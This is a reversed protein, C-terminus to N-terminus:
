LVIGPLYSEVATKPTHRDGILNLTDQVYPGSCTRVRELINVSLKQQSSAYTDPSNYPIVQNQFFAFASRQPLFECLGIWINFDNAGIERGDLWVVHRGIAPKDNIVALVVPGEFM